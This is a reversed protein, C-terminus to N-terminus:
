KFDLIDIKERCFSIDEEVNSAIVLLRNGSYKQILAHYWLAGQRDLNTTPEDLLLVPSDACVALALKLRQKMGSSFYKVPKHRQKDMKLVESIVADVTLGSLFPKFRIHFRIAEELTFEEILDVYPGTYSLKSYIDTAQIPLNSEDFFRVKGKSPTLYGSLLKLLTSKGAGNPGIVAYSGPSNLQISINRLVWEQRYKKAANELEIRM